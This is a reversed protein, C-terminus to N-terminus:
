TMIKRLSFIDKFCVFVLFRILNQIVEKANKSSFVFIATITIKTLIALINHTILLQLSNNM